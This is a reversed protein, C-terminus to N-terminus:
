LLCMAECSPADPKVHALELYAMLYGKAKELGAPIERLRRRNAESLDALDQNIYESPVDGSSLARVTPELVALMEDSEPPGILELYRGAQDLLSDGDWLGDSFLSHVGRVLSKAEEENPAHASINLPGLLSHLGVTALERIWVARSEERNERNMAQSEASAV